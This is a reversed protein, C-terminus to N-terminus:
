IASDLLLFSFLLTIFYQFISIIPIFHIQMMDPCSVLLHFSQFLKVEPFYDMKLSLNWYSSQDYICMM